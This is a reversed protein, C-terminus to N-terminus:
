GSSPEIGRLFSRWLKYIAFRADRILMGRGNSQSGAGTRRWWRWGPRQQGASAHEDVRTDAPTAHAACGLGSGAVSVLALMPPKGVNAEARRNRSHPGVTPWSVRAPVAIM